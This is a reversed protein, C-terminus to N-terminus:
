LCFIAPFNEASFNTDITKVDIWAYVGTKLEKAPGRPGTGFDFFHIQLMEAASKVGRIKIDLANCKLISLTEYKKQSSIQLRM